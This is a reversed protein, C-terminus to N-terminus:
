GTASVPYRSGFDPPRLRSYRVGFVPGGALRNRQLKSGHVANMIAIGDPHCDESFIGSWIRSEEGIEVQNLITQIRM